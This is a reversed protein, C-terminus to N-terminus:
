SGEDWGEERGKGDYGREGIYGKRKKGTMM